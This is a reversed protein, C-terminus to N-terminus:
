EDGAWCVVARHGCGRFRFCDEEECVAFMTLRLDVEGDRVLYQESGVVLDVECGEGIEVGPDALQLLLVRRSGDCEM